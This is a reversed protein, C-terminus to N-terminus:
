RLVTSNNILVEKKESVYCDFLTGSKYKANKGHIFLAFPTLILSAGAVAVGSGQINKTNQSTLKLVQNNPLYLYDITFALKGKKGLMRSGKADTVTGSIVAGSKVIITDNKIVDNELKFELKDGANLDRGNIDKILNAKVLTGEDITIKTQSYNQLGVFLLVAILLKKM